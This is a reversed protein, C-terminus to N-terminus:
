IDGTYKTFVLLAGLFLQNDLNFGSEFLATDNLSIRSYNCKKHNHWVFISENQNCRANATMHARDRKEEKRESEM